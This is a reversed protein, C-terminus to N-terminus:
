GFALDLNLTSFIEDKLNWLLIVLRIIKQLEVITCVYPAHPPAIPQPM